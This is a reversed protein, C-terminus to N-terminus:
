IGSGSDSFVQAKQESSRKDKCEYGVTAAKVVYLCLPLIIM